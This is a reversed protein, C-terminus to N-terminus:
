GIEGATSGGGGSGIGGLLLLLLWKAILCSSSICSSSAYSPWLNIDTPRRTPRPYKKKLKIQRILIPSQVSKISYNKLSFNEKFEDNLYNFQYNALEMDSLNAFFRQDFNEATREIGLLVM